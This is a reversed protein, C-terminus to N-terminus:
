RLDDICGAFENSGAKIRKLERDCVNTLDYLGVPVGNLYVFALNEDRDLSVALHTWTEDEVHGWSRIRM